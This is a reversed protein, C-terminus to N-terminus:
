GEQGIEDRAGRVIQQYKEALATIKDFRGAAVDQPSVLASGVGLVSAGAWLFDAATDLNVGGSPMLRVQPLPGRLAKLHAPGVVDCPFVKVVEAGSEWAALVETPTLAGPIVLRDYRRCIRIVEPSFIPSVIFRAGALMAVRATERDLVTGAGLLIRDGLRDAVAELVKHARPVTFTIEVAEVGGALLAEAAEILGDSTEARLVAVVGGSLLRKLDGRSSMVATVNGNRLLNNFFVM